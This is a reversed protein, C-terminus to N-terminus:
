FIRSGHGFNRTADDKASDVEVKPIAEILTSFASVPISFSEQLRMRVSTENEERKPLKNAAQLNALDRGARTSSV